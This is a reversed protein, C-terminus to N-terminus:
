IPAAWPGEDLDKGRVIKCCPTTYTPCLFARPMTALGRLKQGKIQAQTIVGHAKRMSKAAFHMEKPLKTAEEDDRARREDSKAQQQLFHGEGGASQYTEKPTAGHCGPRKAEGSPCHCPQPGTTVTVQTDTQTAQKQQQQSESPGSDRRIVICKASAIARGVRMRCESVRMWRRCLGFCPCEVAGAVLPRGM